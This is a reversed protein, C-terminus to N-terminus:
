YDLRDHSDKAEFILRSESDILLHSSTVVREGARLGRLIEIQGGSRQGTAVERPRLYRQGCDALVIQRIGRDLMAERPVVV